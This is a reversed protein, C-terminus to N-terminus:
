SARLAEEDDAVLIGNIYVDIDPNSKDAELQTGFKRFIEKVTKSTMYNYWRYLAYNKDVNFMDIKALCKSLKDCQYVFRTKEEQEQNSACWSGTMMTLCRKLDHQLIDFDM